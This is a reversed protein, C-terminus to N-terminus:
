ALMTMIKSLTSIKVPKAQQFQDYAGAKVLLDATYEEWPAFKNDCDACLIKDDYQGTPLRKPYSGKSVLVMPGSRSKLPQLLCRPIIHAEVLENDEEYFRCLM